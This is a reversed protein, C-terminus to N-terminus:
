NLSNFSDTNAYNCSVRYTERKEKGKWEEFAVNEKRRRKQTSQNKCLTFHTQLLKLSKTKNASNARPFMTRLTSWIIRSSSTDKADSEIRSEVSFLSSSSSNPFAALCDAKDATETAAAVRFVKRAGEKYLKSSDTGPVAAVWTARTGDAV